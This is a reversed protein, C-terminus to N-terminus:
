EPQTPWSFFNFMKQRTDHGAKKYQEVLIFLAVMREEHIASNLLEQIDELSVKDCFAKVIKRQDPVVVGLFVDGEGYQGKGTKFFGQLVKPKEKDSVNKLANRIENMTPIKDETVM